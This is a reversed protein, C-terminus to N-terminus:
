TAPPWRSWCRCVEDALAGAARGANLDLVQDGIAVGIRWPEDGCRRASLPRLAPEPHPLRHRLNAVPSGAACRPDHTADTTLTTM